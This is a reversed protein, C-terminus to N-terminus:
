KRCREQNLSLRKFYNGAIPLLSLSCRGHSRWEGGHPNCFSCHIPFSKIPLQTLYPVRFTILYHPFDTHYPQLPDFFPSTIPVSKNRPDRQVKLVPTITSDLKKNMGRVSASDSRM